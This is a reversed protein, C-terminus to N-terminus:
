LQAFKDPWKPDIKVNLDLFIKTNLATELEKRASMGIQKIKKAQNGIIMRKYRDNTTWITADIFRNGNSRFKINTVETKVSYPLEKELSLFVKERIVEEIWQQHGLDTIQGNPYYEDGEPLISFLYDILYNLNSHKKSSISLAAKQKVEINKYYDLYSKERNSLDSKNIVLIIPQSAKLLLKQIYEEEQGPERTPDVVYIIADIGELSDHVALNLRKSLKDKKGLFIGPTDIFVIQGRNQDHLIGRIPLRTTQAKPTIIAVKSGILANLLTSKGVNSRGVIVVFGSKM